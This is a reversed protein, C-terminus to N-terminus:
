ENACLALRDLDEQLKKRDIEDDVQRFLKTDDAYMHIISSIAEPLDNIYCVFLVPGLVSGQPVGSVVESWESFSGAVGVRQRRGVLFQEIWKLTRGEVGYGELKVLLRKHPVTDFAKAFDLYVMDATGGKDLIETLRDVV